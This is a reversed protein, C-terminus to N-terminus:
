FNIKLSCTPQMLTVMKSAPMLYKYNHITIAMGKRKNKSASTFFPVSTLASILGALSFDLGTLNLFAGHKKRDAANIIEGTIILSVGAGLLVYGINKDVKSNHLYDITQQSILQCFSQTSAAGIAAITFLLYFVSQKM